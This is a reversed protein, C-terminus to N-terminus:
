GIAHQGKKLGKVGEGIEVVEGAVDTGLINPYKQFFPGQTM